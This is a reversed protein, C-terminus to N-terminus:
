KINVSDRGAKKLFIDLSKIFEYCSRVFYKMCWKLISSEGVWGEMGAVECQSVSLFDWHVKNNNYNGVDYLM